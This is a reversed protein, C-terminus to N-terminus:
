SEILPLICTFSDQQIEAVFTTVNYYSYVTKLYNLGFMESDKKYHKPQYNNTVVIRDKCIHIHIQLPNDITAINHKLANEVAIQLALFPIKANHNIDQDQLIQINLEKDFRIKQLEIYQKIFTIEHDIVVINQEPPHILYRYTKSLNLTFETATKPDINILMYLSNLSNFLFHPNIQNKLQQLQISVKEKNVKEYAVALTQKEQYAKKNALVFLYFLVVIIFVTTLLILITNKKIPKLNDDAYFKPFNITIYGKFNESNFPALFRIIDLKLYESQSVSLSNTNKSNITDKPNLMGLQYINKGIFKEEPHYICLGNPTFIYAYNPTNIDITALYKHLNNLDITIGYILKEHNPLSMTNYVLWKPNLSDQIFHNTKHTQSLLDYYMPELSDGNQQTYWQLPTNDKDTLVFWQLSILKGPTYMQNIIDFKTYLDSKNQSHILSDLSILYNDLKKFELKLSSLKNSFNKKTIYAYTQESSKNISYSLTLLAGITISM